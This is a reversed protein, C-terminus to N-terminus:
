LFSKIVFAAPIAANQRNHLLDPHPFTYFVEPVALCTLSGTLAGDWSTNLALNSPVM